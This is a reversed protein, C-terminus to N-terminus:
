CFFSHPKSSDLFLKKRDSGRGPISIRELFSYLNLDFIQFFAVLIQKPEKQLFFTYKKSNNKCNQIQRKLVESSSRVIM